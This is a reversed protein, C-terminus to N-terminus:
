WAGDKLVSTKYTGDGPAKFGFLNSDVTSPNQATVMWTQGADSTLGCDMPTTSTVTCASWALSSELGAATAKEGILSAYLENNQTVADDLIEAYRNAVAQKATGTIADHHQMIGLANLMAHKNDKITKVTEDKVDQELLKQAYIKSSAHFNSATQRDQKKADARSTFYGTWYDDNQDAYPFM